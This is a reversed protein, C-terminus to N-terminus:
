EVLLPRIAANLRAYGDRTLHLTDANVGDHWRGEADQLLARSDVVQLLPSRPVSLWHRNLAQAEAGIAGNWFPLRWLPPRAPPIVTVLITRVGRALLADVFHRLNRACQRVIEERRGPLVGIAVLDNIGLQLVVVDPEQALVDAEFRMRMQATTEGPVGKMVLEAGRPVPFDTWQAARSDGFVVIRRGTKAPAKRAEAMRPQVPFVAATRAETYSGKFLSFATVGAALSLVLGLACWAVWRRPEHRSTFLRRRAEARGHRGPMVAISGRNM